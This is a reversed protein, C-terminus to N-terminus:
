NLLRPEVEDADSLLLCIWESTRRVGEVVQATTLDPKMHVLAMSLCSIIAIDRPVNSLIPEMESVVRFVDEGSATVESITPTLKPESM